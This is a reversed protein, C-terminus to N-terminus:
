REFDGFPSRAPLRYSAEPLPALLLFAHVTSKFEDKHEIM